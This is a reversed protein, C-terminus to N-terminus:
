RNLLTRAIVMRQITPTGEELVNLRADRFLREIPYGEIYSRGGFVLMGKDTVRCVAELGFLKAINCELHCPTGEDLKKAVDELMTRLAYIDMAMDALYGRIIERKAIPKGFTVRKKAYELSVELAREATGLSSAAVFM